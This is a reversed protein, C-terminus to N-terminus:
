LLQLEPMPRKKHYGEPLVLLEGEPVRLSGPQCFPPSRTSDQIPSEGVHIWCLSLELCNPVEVIGPSPYTSPAKAQAGLGPSFSVRMYTRNNRM